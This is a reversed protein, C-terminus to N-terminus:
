ERLVVLVLVDDVSKVSLSVNHDTPFLFRKIEDSFHDISLLRFCRNLNPVLSPLHTNLFVLAFIPPWLQSGDPVLHITKPRRHLVHTLIGKWFCQKKLIFRLPWFSLPFSRQLTFHNGKLCITCKFGVRKPLWTILESHRKQNGFGFFVCHISWQLKNFLCPEHEIGEWLTLFGQWSLFKM